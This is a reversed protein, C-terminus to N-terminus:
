VLSRTKLSFMGQPRLQLFVVVVVFAAVKAISATTSYEVVSQLVGLGFAAIVAGEPTVRVPGWEGEPQLMAAFLSSNDFGFGTAYSEAAIWASNELRAEGVRQPPTEAAIVEPRVRDAEERAAEISRVRALDRAVDARVREFNRGKPFQADREFVFVAEENQLVESIRSRREFASFAFSNMGQVFADGLQALSGREFIPSTHVTLGATEAVSRLGEREARARVDEAIHMISDSTELGPNIQLLIHSVGARETGGENRKEHLKIVHVGFATLVPDSIQGPSLAFAADAFEPVWEERASVGPLRGGDEASSLDASYSYALDGFKEGELARDRLEAAFELMLVTDASAPTLPISVYNLRAAEDKRWFSDPHAEFHAKLEREGFAAEPTTFADAPVRYYLLRAQEVRAKLRFAEELDTRHVQSRFIQQLQQQPIMTTKLQYELLRMGPRDYVSAQTLWGQYSRHDFTEEHLFEPVRDPGEYQALFNAVDAPNRVLYDFMEDVTAHLSYSRIMRQLLVNQVRYMFLEQRLQANELPDLPRGKRAEESRLTNQLEQQFSVTSIETGEVEGVTQGSGAGDIPVDMLILGAGILLLFGLIAWKSQRKVWMMSM